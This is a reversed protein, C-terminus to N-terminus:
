RASAASATRRRRADARPLRARVDRRDVLRLRLLGRHRHRVPEPVGRRRRLDERRRRGVLRHRRTRSTRAAHRGPPRAGRDDPSTGTASRGRASSRARPRWGAHFLLSDKTSRRRARRVVDGRSTSRARADARSRRRSAASRSVADPLPLGARRRERGDDAAVHVRDLGARHRLLRDAARRRDGRRRVRDDAADRAAQRPASARDGAAARTIRAAAPRRRRRTTISPQGPEVTAAAITSPPRRGRRRAAAAGDRLVRRRRPASRTRPRAGARAASFPRVNAAQTPPTAATASRTTSSRSRGARSRIPRCSTTSPSSAAADRYPFPFYLNHGRAVVHALPAAFPAVEGRLLAAM